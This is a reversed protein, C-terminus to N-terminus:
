KTQAYAKKFVQAIATKVDDDRDRICIDCFLDDDNELATMSYLTGDWKAQRSAYWCDACCGVDEVGHEAFPVAHWKDEPALKEWQEFLEKAKPTAAFWRQQVDKALAKRRERRSDTLRKKLEAAKAEAAACEAELEALEATRKLPKPDMSTYGQRELIREMAKIHEPRVELFTGMPSTKQWEGNHDYEADIERMWKGLPDFDPAKVFFKGDGYSRFTRESMVSRAIHSDNKLVFFSLVNPDAAFVPSFCV